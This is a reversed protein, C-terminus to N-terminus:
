QFAECEQQRIAAILSAPLQDFATEWREDVDGVADQVADWDPLESVPQRELEDIYARTAQLLVAHYQIASRPPDSITLISLASRLIDLAEGNTASDEVAAFITFVECQQSAYEDETLRPVSSDGCSILIASVAIALAAVIYPTRTM